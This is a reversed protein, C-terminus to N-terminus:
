GPCCFLAPFAAPVYRTHVGYAHVLLQVQLVELEPFLPMNFDSRLLAELSFVDRIELFAIKPCARGILPLIDNTYAAAVGLNLCKLNALTGLQLLEVLSADSLGGAGDGRGNKAVLLCLSQLEPLRGLTPLTSWQEENWESALSVRLSRLGTLAALAPLVPEKGQVALSVKTLGPLLRCLAPAAEAAIPLHLSQLRAFPRHTGPRVREGAIAQAQVITGSRVPPLTGRLELTTLAPLQAFVCFARDLVRTEHPGCPLYNVHLAQLLLLIPAQQALWDVFGALRVPDSDCSPSAVSLSRLRRLPAASALHSLGPHTLGCSFEELTPQIYQLLRPVDDAEVLSSEYLRLQRLRPLLLGEALVCPPIVRLATIMNAYFQRRERSSKVCNLAEEPPQSWLVDVGCAFWMRNVRIAANLSPLHNHLFQLVQRLVEPLQLAPCPM